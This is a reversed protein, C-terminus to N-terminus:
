EVPMMVYQDFKVHGRRTPIQLPGCSPHPPVPIQRRLCADTQGFQAVCEDRYYMSETLQLRRGPKLRRPRPFKTMSITGECQVPAADMTSDVEIDTPDEARHPRLTRTM